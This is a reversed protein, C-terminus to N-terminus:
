SDGEQGGLWRRLILTGAVIISVIIALVTVSGIGPDRVAETVQDVFLSVGLLGPLEGIISGILFDRFRIHSAGAVLNVISFPAVPIIRIAIVALVGRRALRHSITNLRSGSLRKVTDHGVVHGIGFTMLASLTMGLFSYLFGQWAGFALVTVAILATVPMVVLGGALFATVTMFPALPSDKFREAYQVLLPIDLWERLSTYRWALALVVLTLLVAAGLVVQRRAPRRHDRPVVQDAVVDADLPRDPDIIEADPIWTDVEAPICSDFIELTREGGSLASVAGLLSRHRAATEAVVEPSTGLHEALLRHRFGAIARSVTEDGCAEVAVDCETDFGMSRNSLNASGVRVLEDDVILVKSHVSLCQGDLGPVRPYYLGLRQHRDAARLRKLLRGRLVDMTHQELWGDSNPHLVILIEPGDPEEIRRRLEEGILRSTLYQTEIYLYRRAARIADLFLHEVERVEPRGNHAPETRAIAVEVNRFDPLVHPPWPDQTSPQVPPLRRGTARAWRERALEGLANAAMGDVVVQVDHFPRCPKGDPFRRLPHRPRHEPTDWRCPAFDLGGVFALADDIVVVKQHHSAWLPHQADTTFHLRRSSGLNSLPWWERELAYIVHFDWTLVYVHLGRRRVVLARLFEGLGVPLGDSEEGDQLRIRTDFDWGLIVIRREARVAAVRFAQFYAAGDILFAARNAPEMRWCNRGPM